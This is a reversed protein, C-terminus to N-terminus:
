KLLLKTNALYIIDGTEVKHLEGPYIKYREEEGKKLGSGNSSGIDEFYWCSNTYNMVGHQRSVLSSYKEESLDIDVNEESTNKGILLSIKGELDWKKTKKGSEDLLYISKIKSKVKKNSKKLILKSIVILLIYGVITVGLAMINKYLINLYIVSLGVLMYVIDIIKIKKLKKTKKLKKSKIINENAHKEIKKLIFYEKIRRIM